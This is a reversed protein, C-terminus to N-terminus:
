INWKKRWAPIKNLLAQVLSLAETKRESRAILTTDDAFTAVAVPETLPM